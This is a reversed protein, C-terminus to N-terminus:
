HKLWRIGEILDEATASFDVGEYGRALLTHAISGNIAANLPTYGQALLSAILGSLVDGSGAQALVPTGLPNVYVIGEYAILPNAGKLLLVTNPYHESFRRAWGFRDKQIQPAEVHDIDLTSLLAAFEKPHPTIVTKTCKELLTKVWPVYCIDADMVVPIDQEILANEIFIPDYSRGMGMGLAVATTNEPLESSQMLSSPMQGNGKEGVITVLGAGFRLAAWGCLVAAGRKDGAVVALHGYHGKHSALNTRLPPNFDDTELMFTDTHGEYMTRSLGLDAVEIQGIYPKAPDTLLSMKLAGMTITVDAHFAVPNPNGKPDIGTPVDCAIKYANMRNLNDVIDINEVDLPKSLGTGFLADVIIDAQKPVTRVPDLGLALVRELQQKAMVSKAGCPLVLSVKFDDHLLRALAIGDGGNNGPGAVICIHSKERDLHKIHRAMAEAAHEMLIDENLAFKEYCRRDLDRCDHFLKQM